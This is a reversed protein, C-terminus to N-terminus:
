RRARLAARLMAVEEVLRPELERLRVPIDMSTHIVALVIIQSEHLDCVFMHKAVRYFSMGEAFEQELRLIEPNDRIRDLGAQLDDLFRGAVSRGWQQVSHAEIERLDALARETLHVTSKPSHRRGAM